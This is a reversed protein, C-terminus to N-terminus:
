KGISVTRVKTPSKNNTLLNSNGKLKLDLM